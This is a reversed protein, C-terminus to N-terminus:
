NTLRFGGPLLEALVTRREVEGSDSDIILVRMQPGFEYLFQRCAGCPNALPSTAVAVAVIAKAGDSIARTAAVREACITLGFSSNEVNTGAHVRGLDDLVAAGVRFESFPAYANSRVDLAARVLSAEQETTIAHM